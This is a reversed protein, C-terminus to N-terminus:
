IVVHTKSHFASSHICMVPPPPFPPTNLNITECLYIKIHSASLVSIFNLHRCGTLITLAPLNLAHFNTVSSQKFSGNCLIAGTCNACVNAIVRAFCLAGHWDWSVIKVIWCLYWKQSLLVNYHLHFQLHNKKRRLKLKWKLMLPFLFYCLVGTLLWLWFFGVKVQVGLALM